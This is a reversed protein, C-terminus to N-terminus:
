FSGRIWADGPRDLTCNYKKCAAKTVEFIKPMTLRLEFRLYLAFSTGYDENELKTLLVRVRDFYIDVGARTDFLKELLGHKHMGTALDEPCYPFGCLVSVIRAQARQHAKWGAERSLAAWEDATRERMPPAVDVIKAELEANKTKARAERKERLYLAFSTGYDENELKTLLVRVRDFYIDFGARTDFLEERAPRAQPMVTALDEPCYPFGCLVSDIRAQARQHAKWGAERSLAAWEDATRERVPPAVDM